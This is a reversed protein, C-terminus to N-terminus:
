LLFVNLVHNQLLSCAHGIIIVTQVCNDSSCSIFRKLNCTNIFRLSVDNEHSFMTSVVLILAFTHIFCTKEIVTM